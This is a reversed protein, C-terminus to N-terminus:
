EEWPLWKVISRNATKYKKLHKMYKSKENPM